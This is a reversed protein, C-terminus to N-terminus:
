YKLQSLFQFVRSDTPQFLNIILGGFLNLEETLYISKSQAKDCASLSLMNFM